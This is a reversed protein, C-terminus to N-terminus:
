RGRCWAVDRRSRLMGGAARGAPRLQLVRREVRGEIVALKLRPNATCLCVDERASVALAGECRGAYRAGWGRLLLWKLAFSPKEGVLGRLRWM